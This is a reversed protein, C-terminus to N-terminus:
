AAFADDPRSGSSGVQPKAEGAVISKGSSLSRKLRMQFKLFGTSLSRGSFARVHGRRTMACRHQDSLALGSRTEHYSRFKNRSERSNTVPKTFAEQKARADRKSLGGRNMDDIIEQMLRPKCWISVLYYLHLVCFTILTAVGLSHDVAESPYYPAVLSEVVMLAMIVYCSLLYKDLFTLYAVDPLRDAVVLKYAASTLMATLSLSLRDGVSTVPMLFILGAIFTLSSVPVVVNIFLAFPKREVLASISLAPYSRVPMPSVMTCEVVLRPHLRWMNALAFTRLNISVAANSLAEEDFRVPVRGETSCGISIVFTLRQVDM